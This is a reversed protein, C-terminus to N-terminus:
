LPCLSVFQVTLFFKASRQKYTASAIFIYDLKRQDMQNPLKKLLKNM